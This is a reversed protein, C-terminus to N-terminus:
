YRIEPIAGNCGTNSYNQIARYNASWNNMNTNYIQRLQIGGKVSLPVLGGLGGIVGGLLAGGGGAPAAGVGFGFLGGVIAGTEGGAVAGLGAGTITATGISTLYNRAANTDSVQKGVDNAQQLATIRESCPNSKPQPSQPM